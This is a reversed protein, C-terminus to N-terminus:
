KGDGYKDIEKQVSIYHNFAVMVCVYLFAAVYCYFAYKGLFWQGVQYWGDKFGYVLVLGVLSIVLLVNWSIVVAKGHKKVFKNLKRKFGDM